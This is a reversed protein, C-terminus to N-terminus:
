LRVADEDVTRPPWAYKFDSSELSLNPNYYPDSRLVSQWKKSFHQIERQFQIARPGVAVDDIGRTVSEHHVFQASPTWVVRWGAQTAKVCLETDSFAVPLNVEDLGSVEKWVTRRVLLVAGTVGATTRAVVNSDFYGTSNRDELVGIHAAIGQIGLVVGAHQIRGDPYFLKAGVIGVEPQSIQGVMEDLWDFTMAETDDNLLCILDGSTREVAMNNLASYNFPREDRIVDALGKQSLERLYELTGTSTSGNDVITIRYSPYMTMTLISSICEGLFKGDRTPIIIDVSLAPDPLEWKVRVRGTYPNWSATGPKGTRALHDQVARLGATLAYPKKAVWAATSNAHARWHYLPYPIHVIEDKKLHETARLVLDWDQSGDYEGRFGGIKELLDRKLVMMHCVYNMALIRLPDFDPKFFPTHREGSESISDEDSYLYLAEPNKEVAIAIAALARSDLEDDHDLFAVWEGDSNEIGDNSAASIHGNENRYIVHIRRDRNEVEALYFHLEQSPSADDVILLEWDAYSQHEVSAIARELFEINSDYTPMVVSIKPRNVLKREQGDIQAHIKPEYLAIWDLYSDGVSQAAAKAGDVRRERDGRLRGYVKRLKRTYRFLRTSEIRALEARAQKSESELASIRRNLDQENWARALVETELRNLLEERALSEGFEPTRPSLNQDEVDDNADPV